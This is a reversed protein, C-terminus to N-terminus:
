QTLSRAVIDTSAGPAFAVLLTVPKAKPWEAQASANLSLVSCVAALGLRTWPTSRALTQWRHAFHAM